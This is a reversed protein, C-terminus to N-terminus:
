ASRGVLDAGIIRNPDSQWGFDLFASYASGPLDAGTSDSPYYKGIIWYSEPNWIWCHRFQAAPINLVGINFDSITSDMTTASAEVTDSVKGDQKGYAKYDYTHEPDLNIDHVLFDSKNIKGAFIINENRTVVYKAEKELGDIHLNIWAETVETDIQMTIKHDEFLPGTSSCHHISSLIFFSYISILIKHFIRFFTNLINSCQLKDFFLINLQRM